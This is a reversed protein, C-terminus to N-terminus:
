RGQRRSQSILRHEDASLAAAGLARLGADLHAQRSIGLLAVSVEPRALTFQLALEDRSRGSRQAIAGCAALQAHKRAAVAPEHDIDDLQLSDVPRTVLGSAFVQRAIIAAGRQAARPIVEDLAAQELVSLGVQISALTPYHLASLTDADHQCAIGWHRVKGQERLLELPAIFDGRELVEIPPDHLQYVDIYDTRLRRLSAEAAKVIYAASFDQPSVTRRVRAPVQNSKLGLRAVLPKVLPKIRNIFQKQTPLVYGVKTAIVVRDRNGRFAEGVLRESEGQTYMDATDFFTIGHDCARRLLGIVEAPTGGSFLGGIRACGFGIESTTLETNGFQRYRMRPGTVGGWRM